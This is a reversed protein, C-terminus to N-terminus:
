PTNENGATDGAVLLDHRRLRRFKRRRAAGPAALLGGLLTAVSLLRHVLTM